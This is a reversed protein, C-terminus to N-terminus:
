PLLGDVYAQGIWRGYREITWGRERVLLDNLDPASYLWLVDRAEEVTM